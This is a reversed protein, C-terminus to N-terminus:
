VSYREFSQVPVSILTSHTRHKESNVKEGLILCYVIPKKILSKNVSKIKQNCNLSNGLPLLFNSETPVIWQTWYDNFWPSLILTACDKEHVCICLFVQLYNSLSSFESLKCTVRSQGTELSNKNLNFTKFVWYLETEHFSIVRLVRDYFITM